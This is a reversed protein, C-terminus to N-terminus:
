SLVAKIRRVGASSAEEKTIKFRGLEGTHRVHPGGCIEKSFYEEKSKGITYVKVKEGYKSEFVGMANCKKADELTMEELDVPLDQRIQDNVLSEVERIQEPTLKEPHSFDFRLREATINSGRQLVHEGLVKRLAALLLHTATHYKTAIDGADALGGKFMGASATRSLEQHARVKDEFVGVADEKVMINLRRAEELAIELPLGKSQYLDFLNEGSLEYRKPIDEGVYSGSMRAYTELDKLAANLTRRFKVEEKELEDLVGDQVENQGAFYVDRYIELVIRAVAVTFNDVIGIQHAKVIARRILRRVVYGRDKNSPTAGDAIAFVAAKIHDAIIRFGRTNDEYSKGSLRELEQIIPWFLDTRYNDDLGNMIALARELGMGTDVNKQVLPEFKGDSTKYYQMFVDNWIEVWREDEPDFKVPAQGGGTWVFMETDPGCPGTEGAPGWWNNKKPLRAIREEPIGLESWINYAEQDFPADVDGAFVSMALQKVNIGLWEKSTLYEYSWLIAERKFYDGLSWNGLMEFFTHHTKDGVEDIDGTRICKQANTLRRGMPHKEGMLFPVLPQMGATTFLVTPDNEPVLPASPIVAHDRERFFSLFKKRLETSNM